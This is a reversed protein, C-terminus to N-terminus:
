RRGRKRKPAKERPGIERVVIGYQERTESSLPATIAVMETPVFPTATTSEETSAEVLVEVQAGSPSEIRYETQAATEEPTVYVPRVRQNVHSCRPCRIRWPRATMEALLKSCAGCRVDTDVRQDGRLVNEM